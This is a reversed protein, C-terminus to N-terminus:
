PLQMAARCSVPYLISGAAQIIPVPLKLRNAIEVVQSELLELLGHKPRDFLAVRPILIASPQQIGM